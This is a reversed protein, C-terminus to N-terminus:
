RRKSFPLSIDHTVSIIVCKSNQVKILLERRGLGRAPRSSSAAHLPGSALKIRDPWLNYKMAAVRVGPRREKTREWSEHVNRADCAATCLAACRGREAGPECSEHVARSSTRYVYLSAMRAFARGDACRLHACSRARRSGRVRYCDGWAGRCSHNYPMLDLKKGFSAM